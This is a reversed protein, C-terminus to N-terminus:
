SQNAMSTTTARPDDDIDMEMVSDKGVEKRFFVRQRKKGDAMECPINEIVSM